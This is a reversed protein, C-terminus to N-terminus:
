RFQSNTEMLEVSIALNFLKDSKRIKETWNNEVVIAPYFYGNQQVYLEPSAILERLWKYDTENVYESNLSYSVKQKIAYQLNGGIMKKNADYPRMVDGSLAWEAQKYQKREMNRIQRNVLRFPMTDYGGLENLFHIIIPEFRNCVRNVTITKSNLTVTYKQIDDTIFNSSLYTNIALPSVDLLNVAGITTAIGTTSTIGNNFTASLTSEGGSDSMYTIFCRESGNITLENRDRNTVYNELKTIFYSTSYDRFIPPYFNYAKKESSALNATIVGNNDEGVEVKYSVYNDFGTYSFFTPTTNPKFYSSWYNRVINGVNCIGKNTSPDPFVKLRSILVNNIKIDFIYKFNVSSANTSTAVFYLEDHLSAFLEPTSNITIAM